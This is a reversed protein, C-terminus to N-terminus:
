KTSSLAVTEAAPSNSDLVNVLPWPAGALDYHFEGQQDILLKSAPYLFGKSKATDTDNLDFQGVALDFSQSSAPPDAEEVPHPRSAIFTIKRGTPTSVVQIFAVEYSLGGAISCHGVAKTKSLAAALGRDQGDQFAQSLIQLDLPTSYNYVILTLTATNGAQTSTAQITEPNPASAFGFATGLTFTGVLLLISIGSKRACRIVKALPRM